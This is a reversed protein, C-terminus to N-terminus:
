LQMSSNIKIIKKFRYIYLLAMAIYYWVTVAIARDASEGNSIQISAPIVAFIWILTSGTLGLFRSDGLAVLAGSWLFLIAEAFTLLINWWMANYATNRVSESLGAFEKIFLSLVQDSFLAFFTFVITFFILHLVVGSRLMDPIHETKKAGICNSAIATGAKGVADGLFSLLAFATHIVSWILLYDAGARSMLNAITSWACTQFLTSIMLPLGLSCCARFMSWDVRWQNTQFLTRNKSSLFASLYIVTQVFQSIGTAIGAGAMGLHPIGYKGFILIPDLIINLINVGITIITVFATRGRGIWFSALAMNIGFLPTFHTLSSFFQNNLDPFCSSKFFYVGGWHAIPSFILVSFLSLWFMAWCPKAIKNYERSGYLRGVYVESSAALSILSFEFVIFFSAAESSASFAEQSLYSLFFRDFFIMIAVSSLSLMLPFSITLLERISGIPFRTLRGQVQM